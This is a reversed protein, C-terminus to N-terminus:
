EENWWQGIEKRCYLRRWGKWTEIIVAKEQGNNDKRGGSCIFLCFSHPCVRGLLFSKSDFENKIQKTRERERQKIKTKVYWLLCKGWGNGVNYMGEGDIERERKKGLHYLWEM